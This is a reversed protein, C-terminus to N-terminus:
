WATRMTDLIQAAGSDKMIDGMNQDGRNEYLRAALLMIAQSMMDYPISDSELMGCDYTVVISISDSSISEPSVHWPDSQKDVYYDIDTAVNDIDFSQFSVIQVVPGYPLAIFTSKEDYETSLGGMRAYFGPWGIVTYAIRQPMIARGSYQQCLLTARELLQNLRSDSDCDIRGQWRFDEASVPSGSPPTIYRISPIM